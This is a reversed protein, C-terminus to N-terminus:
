IIFLYSITAVMLLFFVISLMTTVKSNMGVEPVPDIRNGPSTPRTKWQKPKEVTPVIRKPKAKPKEPRIRTHNTDQGPGIIRFSYVDLRLRDGAKAVGETIREDNIYTGNASALDRIQLLNGKAMIEAHQRSLHTGPITIDCQSGRGVIAKGNPIKFERGSLWSSDAVLAWPSNKSAKSKESSNESERGALIELEIRGLRIVDGPIIEKQTVRQDNVFCGHKSNNDRLYLKDDKTILKAHIPSITSDGVVLNNTPASGIAYLKEVIWVAERAKGKFQIKLM